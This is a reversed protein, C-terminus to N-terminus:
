EDLARPRPGLDPLPEIGLRVDLRDRATARHHLLLELALAGRVGAQVREGRAESELLGVLQEDGDCSILDVQALQLDGHAAGLRSSSANMRKVKSTVSRACSLRAKAM